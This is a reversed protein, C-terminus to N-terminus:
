LGQSERRAAYVIYRMDRQLHLCQWRFHICNDPVSIWRELFTFTADLAGQHSAYGLATDWRVVHKSRSVVLRRIDSPQYVHAIGYFVVSLRSLVVLSQHKNLDVRWGTHTM